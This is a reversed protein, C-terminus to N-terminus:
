VLVGSMKVRMLIVQPDQSGRPKQSPLHPSWPALATSGQRPAASERGTALPSVRFQLSLSRGEADQGKLLDHIM